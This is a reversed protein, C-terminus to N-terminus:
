GKNCRARSSLSLAEDISSCRFAKEREGKRDTLQLGNTQFKKTRIGFEGLMGM